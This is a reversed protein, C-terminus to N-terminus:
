KFLLKNSECEKNFVEGWIKHLEDIVLDVEKKDTYPHTPVIRFVTLNRERGGDVPLTTTSIYIGKEDLKKSTKELMQKELDPDDTIQKNKPYICLTNLDPECLINFENSKVLKRYAYDTMDLNHNLIIGLKHTGLKNKVAWLSAAGQGGMSGSIRRKGHSNTTREKFSNGHEPKFMYSNGDDNLEEILAHDEQNRFLIVGNPYPTYFYKHPDTVLSDSQNMGKFLEKKRSLNYAAGYAGDIHLFIDEGNAIDAIEQLPDVMGTETEGAVAVIAMIPMGRKNCEIIEKKLEVTNMNYREKDIPIKILKIFKNFGLENCTKTISYHALENALVAVEGNFQNNKSIKNLKNLLKERAILLGTKNAETGGSVIAGSAKEIDYGATEKNLWDIVEDEWKSETPSVERVITNNNKITSAIHALIAPKCGNPHLQAMSKENFSRDDKLKTILTDAFTLIESPLSNDINKDTFNNTSLERVVMGVAQIFDSNVLKTPDIFYENRIDLFEQKQNRSEIKNTM